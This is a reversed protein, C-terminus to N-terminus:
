YKLEHIFHHIVLANMSGAKFNHHVQPKKERAMYVLTPLRNGDSDLSKTDRGDILIQFFLIFFLM